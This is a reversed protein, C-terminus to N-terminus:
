AAEVELARAVAEVLSPQAAVPAMVADLLREMAVAHTSPEDDTAEGWFQCEDNMVSYRVITRDQTYTLFPTEGFAQEIALKAAHVRNKTADIAAVFDIAAQPFFISARTRMYLADELGDCWHRVRAGFDDAVCWRGNRQEIVLGNFYAPYSDSAFKTPTMM